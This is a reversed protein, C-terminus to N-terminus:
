TNDVVDSFLITHRAILKLRCILQTIMILTETLGFLACWPWYGGYFIRTSLISLIVARRWHGSKRTLGWGVVSTVLDIGSTYLYSDPLRILSVGGRIEMWHLHDWLWKLISLFSKFAEDKNWIKQGDSLFAQWGQSMRSETPRSSPNWRTGSWTRRAVPSLMQSPGDKWPVGSELRHSLLWSM